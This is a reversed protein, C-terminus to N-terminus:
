IMCWRRWGMLRWQDIEKHRYDDEVRREGTVCCQKQIKREDSQVDRHGNKQGEDTITITITIIIITNTPKVRRNVVMDATANRTKPEDSITTTPATTRSGQVAEGAQTLM